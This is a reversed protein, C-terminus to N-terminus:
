LDVVETLTSSSLATPDFNINTKSIVFKTDIEAPVRRFRIADNVNWNPLPAHTVTITSSPALQALRRNAYSQLAEQTTAEVGQQVDTIWRGRNQFSYPSNPNENTAVAVMAEDTGTGQGIAIVKNPVSYIDNDVAMDPTYISKKDDLMEYRVPRNKTAVHEEIRFNGNGDAWLAFFGAADLLDNVITLKSTGAPWTMGSSLTETSHTISGASEGTSEIITKVATTVVTGSPLSYTAEVKDQNLVSTRDLLEVDWSRGDQAWTEVPAAPIFVGLPWTGHGDIVISPKVRVRLWDIEGNVDSVKITGGGKVAQTSNWEISGGSVGNLTGLPTGNKNVLAFKFHTSRNGTIPEIMQKGTTSRLAITGSPITVKSM